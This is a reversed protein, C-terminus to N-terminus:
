GIMAAFARRLETIRADDMTRLEGIQRASLVADATAELVELRDFADLVSRGAILCGNHATLCVPQKPGILHALAHVDTYVAEFPAVPLDLLFLYSEPITRSDLRVESCSFATACVPLANVVAEVGPHARYLARHIFVARSPAKGPEYEDGRVLVLDEPTCTKRDMGYATIVFADPGVRASFSGETSTFLGQRYGRRVFEAVLQRQQKELTNAPPPGPPAFPILREGPPTRAALDAANAALQIQALTLTRVGGLVSGRILTRATFDLTEFRAFASRLDAGGIVVGHNELMVSDVGSAFTDAIAAGLRESGPLHYPCFGVPGCVHAAHPLVSTEPPKGAVSFAVLAVPHAHVVARLDPRARYIARHFPLESSPPHLGECTGDKRVRVIDQPRLAGKDVRAPTIWLDGDEDLLSLNGGSTTTLRTAYIRELTEVLEQRPHIVPRATPGVCVHPLTSAM